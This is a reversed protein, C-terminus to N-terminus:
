WQGKRKIRDSNKNKSKFTPLQSDCNPCVLRVNNLSNDNCKGDIHDMIMNISKNNWEEKLGCIMCINGYKWILYKKIATHCFEVGNNEEIKKFKQNKKYEISCSSSCFIQDKRYTKIKLNCNKCWIEM